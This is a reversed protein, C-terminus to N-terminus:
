AKKIFVNAPYTVKLLTLGAAPVLGASLSRDQSAVTLQFDAVSMRGLGVELLNGVVARVMGRLFRNATIQFILQGDDSVQWYAEHVNCLYPYKTPSGLKSFTEFNQFQQLTVAAENMRDLHLEKRFTYTTSRLFPNKTRAIRYVYTRSIADYRAHATAVVHYIGEIAIDPPLISNLKYQLKSTNVEFPLDMHAWQQEAHVGTDTRSSGVIEIPQSLLQTLKDQIIGQVTIANAQV